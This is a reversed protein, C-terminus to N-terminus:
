KFMELFQKWLNSRAVDVDQAEGWTDAEERREDWDSESHFWHLTRSHRNESKEEFWYLSKCELTLM